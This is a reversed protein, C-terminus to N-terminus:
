KKKFLQLSSLDIGEAIKNGYRAIFYSLTNSILGNLFDNASFDPIEVEPHGMKVIFEFAVAVITIIAFSILYSFLFKLKYAPVATSEGVSEGLSLTFSRIGEACGIFVIAINLTTALRSLDISILVNFFKFSIFKAIMSIFTFAYVFYFLKLIDKQHLKLTKTFKEEEEKSVEETLKEECKENVTSVVNTIVKSATEISEKTKEDIEM